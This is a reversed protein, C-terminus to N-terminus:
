CRQRQWLWELILLRSSSSSQYCRYHYICENCQSTWIVIILKCENWLIHILCLQSSTHSTHTVQLCPLMTSILFAYCYKIFKQIQWFVQLVSFMWRWLCTLLSAEGTLDADNCKCGHKKLFTTIQRFPQETFIIPLWIFLQYYRM